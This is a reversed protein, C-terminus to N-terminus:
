IENFVAAEFAIIKNLNFADGDEVYLQCVPINYTHVLNLLKKFNYISELTLRELEGDSLKTHHFVTHGGSATRERIQKVVIKPDKTLVCILCRNGIVTLFDKKDLALLEASFNHCIGEDLFFGSESNPQLIKINNSLIRKFYGMLNLKEESGTHMLNVADIKKKFLEWHIKNLQEDLVNDNQKNFSKSHGWTASLDNKVTNYLVTKGVGSPGIFEIIKGKSINKKENKSPYTGKNNFLRRFNM